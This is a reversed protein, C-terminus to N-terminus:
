RGMGNVDVYDQHMVQVIRRALQEGDEGPQQTIQNTTYYNVTSSTGSSAPANAWLAAAPSVAGFGYGTPVAVLAASARAVAPIMDRIGMEFGQGTFRGLKGFLKSPSAIRAKARIAADAAAVMAGAAAQIAGLASYMGSAFSSSINAGASYAAGAASAGISSVIGPIAGLASQM